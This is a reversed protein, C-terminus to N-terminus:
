PEGACGELRQRDDGVLLGHRPGLDRRDAADVDVTHHARELVTAVDDFQRSVGAGAIRHQKSGCREEEFVQAEVRHVVQRRQTLEYRTGLDDLGAAGLVADTVAHLVADGDSHGDPGTPHDLEVGGLICARGAVLRHLDFGTGVRLKM